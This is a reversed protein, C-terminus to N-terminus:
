LGVQKTFKLSKVVSYYLAAPGCGFPIVGERGEGELPLTLTPPSPEQKLFIESNALFYCLSRGRCQASFTARIAALRLPPERVAGVGAKYIPDRTKVLM